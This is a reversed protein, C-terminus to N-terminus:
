ALHPPLNLTSTTWALDMVLTHFVVKIQALLVALPVRAAVEVGIANPARVLFITCWASGAVMADM